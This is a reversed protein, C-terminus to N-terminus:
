DCTPLEEFYDPPLFRAESLALAGHEPTYLNLFDFTIQGDPAVEFARGQAASTVLMHGTPLEQHKGRHWSYFDYDEGAVVTRYDMTEPDIEVIRSHGRHMNNDFVSITGRNNWDPDHQRRTLGVRWWKIKQTEPEVVLILNISRLSLLLDGAEFAPYADAFEPLLPDVDNQHFAGGGGSVWTSGDKDDLQRLGFVDIDLNAEIMDYISFRQLTEGDSVRVQHVNNGIIVEGEPSGWTWITNDEGIEISHHFNGPVRWLENGCYDYRTLISSEDFATIISGDKLIVFGHPFVNEDPYNSWPNGEQTVNWVNMVKGDPDLLIVGHLGSDLDFVGYVVRYGRPANEALFVVPKGRRSNVPVEIFGYGSSINSLDPPPVFHRAPLLGLDNQVKEALTTDEEEHGAVFAEVDKVFMYPWWRHEAAEMGLYLAGLGLLWCLALIQFANM